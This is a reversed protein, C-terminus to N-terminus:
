FVYLLYAVVVPLVFAALLAIKEFVWTLCYFTAAWFGFKMPGANAHIVEGKIVIRRFLVSDLDFTSHNPFRKKIEAYKTQQGTEDGSLLGELELYCDRHLSAKAGFKFGWTTVSLVLVSASLFTALEDIGIAGVYPEFSASFVTLCLLWLSYWILVLHSVVDYVRLRKEAEMRAKATLWINATKIEGSQEEESMQDGCYFIKNAPTIQELILEVGFHLYCLSPRVRAM